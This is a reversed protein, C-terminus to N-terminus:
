ELLIIYLMPIIKVYYSLNVKLEGRQMIIKFMFLSKNSFNTELDSINENSIDEFLKSEDGM